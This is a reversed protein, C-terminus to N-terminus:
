MSVAFNMAQNLIDDLHHARHRNVGNEIEPRYEKVQPISMGDGGVKRLIAEAERLLFMMMAFRLHAHQSAFEGSFRVAFGDHASQVAKLFNRFQKVKYPPLHAAELGGVTNFIHAAYIEKITEDGLDMANSNAREVSLARGSMLAGVACKCVTGDPRTVINCCQSQMPDELGFEMQEEFHLIISNLVAAAGLIRTQNFSDFNVITNIAHSM